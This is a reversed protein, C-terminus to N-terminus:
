CLPVRDRSAESEREQQDEIYHRVPERRAKVLPQIQEIALTLRKLADKGSATISGEHATIELMAESLSGYAHNILTQIDSM